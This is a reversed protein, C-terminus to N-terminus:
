LLIIQHLSIYIDYVTKMGLSSDSQSNKYVTMGMTCYYCSTHHKYKSYNTVYM